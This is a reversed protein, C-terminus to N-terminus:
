LLEMGPLAIRVSNPKNWLLLASKGLSSETTIVAIINPPSFFYILTPIIDNNVIDKIFEFLFTMLAAAKNGTAESVTM